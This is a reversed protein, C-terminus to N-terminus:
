LSQFPDVQEEAEAMNMRDIPNNFPMVPETGRYNITEGQHMLGYAGTVRGVRRSSAKQQPGLQCMNRSRNADSHMAMVQDSNAAGGPLSFAASKRESSSAESVFPETSDFTQHGAAISHGSTAVSAAGVSMASAAFGENDDSDNNGGDDTSGALQPGGYLAAYDVGNDVVDDAESRYLPPARARWPYFFSGSIILIFILIMGVVCIIESTQSWAM